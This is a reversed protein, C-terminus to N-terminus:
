MFTRIKINIYSTVHCIFMEQHYTIVNAWPPPASVCGHVSVLWHTNYLFNSILMTNQNIRLMSQPFFYDLCLGLGTHWVLPCLLTSQISHNKKKNTYAPSKSPIRNIANTPVTLYAGCLCESKLLWIIITHPQTICFSFFLPLTVKCTVHHQIMDYKARDEDESLLM